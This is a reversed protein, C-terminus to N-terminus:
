VSVFVDNLTRRILKFLLSHRSDSQHSMLFIAARHQASSIALVEFYAEFKSNEM